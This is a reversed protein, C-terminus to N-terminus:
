SAAPCRIEELDTRREGRRSSRERLADWLRTWRLSSVGEHKSVGAV